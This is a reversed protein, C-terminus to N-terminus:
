IVPGDGILAETFSPINYRTAQENMLQMEKVSITTKEGGKERNRSFLPSKRHSDRSLSGAACDAWVKPCELFQMIDIATERPKSVFDEYRVPKIMIGLKLFSLYQHVTIVWYLSMKVVDPTPQYWEPEDQRHQNWRFCYKALAASIFSSQIRYFYFFSSLRAVRTFSKAVAVGDRYLFLHKSDPFAKVLAPVLYM